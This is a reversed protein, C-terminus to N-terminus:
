YDWHRSNNVKAIELSYLAKGRAELVAYTNSLIAILLNLLLILNIILFIAQYIHGWEVEKTQMEEFIDPDFNGLSAEFLYNIAKYFTVFNDVDPFLLIGVSSFMVLSLFYLILFVSIDKVMSFIMKILPGLLSTIRFVLFVRLWMMILIIATFNRFDFDEDQGVVLMLEFTYLDSSLSTSIDARWSAYERGYWTLLTGLIFFDIFNHITWFNFKRNAKRSFFHELFLRYLFILSM